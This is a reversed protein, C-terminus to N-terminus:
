IGVRLLSVRESTRALEKSDSARGKVLPCRNRRSEEAVRDHAFRALNPFSREM